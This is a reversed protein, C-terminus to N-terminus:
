SIRSDLQFIQGSTHPLDEHLHRIFGAVAATTNFRGLTHQSLVQAKRNESVNQTMKTELFGPLVANVRIGHPGNQTALSAVLGLLAAKSTAYAAQGAPPHLASYSSIFIIHGSRRRIMQPMAAASCAAAARYNVAIVEDWDGEDIAALPADRAVGAACILLDVERSEFYARVAAPNCIDLEARTPAAVTWSPLAFRGVIATGLGGSGGTIVLHNVRRSRARASENGALVTMKM